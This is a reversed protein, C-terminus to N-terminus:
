ATNRILLTGRKSPVIGVWEDVDDIVICAAHETAQDFLRMVNGAWGEWFHVSSNIMEFAGSQVLRRYLWHRIKATKGLGPAGFVKQCVSALVFFFPLPAM